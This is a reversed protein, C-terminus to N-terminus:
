SPHKRSSANKGHHTRRPRHFRHPLTAVARERIGRFPRRRRHGALLIGHTEISGARRRHQKRLIGRDRVRDDIGRLIGGQRKIEAAVAPRDLVPKLERRGRLRADDRQLVAQERAQAILHQQREVRLRLGGRQHEPRAGCAGASVQGNMTGLDQEFLALM